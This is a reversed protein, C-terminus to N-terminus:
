EVLIALGEDKEVNGAGRIRFGNRESIDQNVYHVCVEHAMLRLVAKLSKTEHSPKIPVELYESGDYISSVNKNERVKQRFGMVDICFQWM